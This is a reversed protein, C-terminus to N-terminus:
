LSVAIALRLLFFQLLVASFLCFLILNTLRHMVASGALGRGSPARAGRVRRGVGCVLWPRRCMGRDPWTTCSPWAIARM